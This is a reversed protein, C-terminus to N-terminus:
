RSVLKMNNDHKNIQMMTRRPVVAVPSSLSPIHRGQIHMNNDYSKDIKGDYSSEVVNEKMYRTYKQKQTQVNYMGFFFLFYFHM